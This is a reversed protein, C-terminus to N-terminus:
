PFRSPLFAPALPSTWATAYPSIKLAEEPLTSARQDHNFLRHITRSDARKHSKFLRHSREFRRPRLFRPLRIRSVAHRPLHKTDAVAVQFLQALCDLRIMGQRLIQPSGAIM